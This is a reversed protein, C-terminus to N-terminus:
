WPRRRVSLRPTRIVVLGLVISAAALVVIGRIDSGTRALTGTRAADAASRPAVTMEAAALVRGAADTVTIQHPGPTANAPITVTTQFTGAPSSTLRALVVPDSLFNIQLPASAPFREGTVVIQDAAPGQSLSLIPALATTTTARATTTTTTAPATTTTTTPDPGGGEVDLTWGGAIEGDNGGPDNPGDDVIYLRWTGNPDIGNFTSLAATTSTSPAPPNFGDAPRSPPIEGGDDDDDVPQFTGSSCQGDAPLPSEAQDDFTLDIPTTIPNLQGNGCADSMLLTSTAGDPAVLMIDLDGPGSEPEGDVLRGYTLDNLTVNVDTVSGEVGSVAITSPYPVAQDFPCAGGSFCGAPAEGRPVVIREPNSFEAAASTGTLLSSITLTMVAAAVMRAM